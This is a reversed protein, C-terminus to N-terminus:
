CVYEPYEYVYMCLMVLELMKCVFVCTSTRVCHCIGNIFNSPFNEKDGMVMTNESMVGLSKM